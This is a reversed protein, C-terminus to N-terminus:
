NKKWFLGSPESELECKLNAKEGVKKTIDVGGEVVNAVSFHEDEVKTVTIKGLTKKRQMVKGDVTLETVEYVRFEDNVKLGLLTGGAILVSTAAGLSNKDEIEAISVTLKFNEKMFKEVQSKADSIAGDYANKGKGTANVTTTAIVDGRGADTVNLTFSIEAVNTNTTGVIPVNTQRMEMTAKAINGSIIFQAGAAKSQEFSTDTQAVVTLRKNKLFVDSVADQIATVNNTNQSANSQFRLIGVTTKSQAFASAGFIFSAFTFIVSKKTM